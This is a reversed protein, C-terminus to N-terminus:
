KLQRLEKIEFEKALKKRVNELETTDNGTIIIDDIYVILFALKVGESHKYCMTHNAQGQM